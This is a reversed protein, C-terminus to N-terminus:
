RPQKEGARAKLILVIAAGFLSLVAALTVSVWFAYPDIGWWQGAAIVYIAVLGGFLGVAILFGSCVAGLTRVTRNGYFRLPLAVLIALAVVLASGMVLWVMDIASFAGNGGRRGRQSHFAELALASLFAVNAAVMIAAAAVSVTQLLRRRKREDM